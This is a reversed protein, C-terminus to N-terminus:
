WDRGRCLWAGCKARKGKSNRIVRRQLWMGCRFWAAPIGTSFIERGRQLVCVAAGEDEKYEDLLTREHERALAAGGWVCISRDWSEPWSGSCMLEKCEAVQVAWVDTHGQFRREGGRYREWGPRVDPWPRRVDPKEGLLRAGISGRQGGAAKIRVGARDALEAPRLLRHVDVALYEAGLVCYRIKSLLRWGRLEGGAVQIWGAVAELVADERSVSLMNDDLLSGVAGEDMRM